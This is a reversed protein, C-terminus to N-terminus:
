DLDGGNKQFDRIARAKIALARPRNGRDIQRNRRQYRAGVIQNLPETLGGSQVVFAHDVRVVALLRKVSHELSRRPVRSLVSTLDHHHQLYKADRRLPREYVRIEIAEGHRAFNPVTLVKPVKFGQHVADLNVTM